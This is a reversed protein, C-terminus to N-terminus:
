FSKKLMKRGYTNYQNVREHPKELVICLDKWMRLMVHFCLSSTNTESKKQGLVCRLANVRELGTSLEKTFYAFDEDGQRVCM